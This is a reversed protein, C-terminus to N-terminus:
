ELRIAPIWNNYEKGNADIFETCNIVGGTVDKSRAHIIQPYSGTIITYNYKHEELLMVYPAGSVNHLTINHYDGIYGNWTGNAIPIGNEYLEIFETHGGTGVCAYTYLTSVNINYSPTITGNHIGMISPYPNESPETDFISGSVVEFTLMEMLDDSGVGKIVDEIIALIQDQNKGETVGLAALTLEGAWEGTEYSGDCGPALVLTVWIGMDLGETMTIDENFEDDIVSTAGILIGALLSPTAFGSKWGEPSVLIYDVEDVGTATGEFTYDEGEAVVDRPQTATLGPSILHITINGDPEVGEYSSLNKAEGLKFDIYAEITYSDTTYGSTDWYVNFENNWDVPEDTEVIEAGKIIIDVKDGASIAGEIEVDEGIVATAPVDFTVTAPVVTVQVSDNDTSTVNADPVFTPYVPTITEYVKITYTRTDAGCTDIVVDAIGDSGTKMWAALNPTSTAPYAYGATDLARVDAVDKIEPPVSVNVDTVILYYYTIPNGTVRLIIDDGKGVEDETAEILLEGSLVKFDYKPLSIDLGKESWYDADGGEITGTGTRAFSPVMAGFISALMIAALAIGILAKGKGSGKGGGEKIKTKEKKM